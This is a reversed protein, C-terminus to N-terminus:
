KLVSIALAPDDSMIMDVGLARLHQMMQPDNVTWVNVAKGGSHIRQIIKQNVDQYYPHLANFAPQNIQVARPLWGPLGPLALLGCPINPLLAKARKLNSVRFSSFMVRSTDKVGALVRAVADVLGDGPTTYNTLEINIGIKGGVAEFVEALLPLKEGRWAAGYWSGADLKRLDAFSQYKYSGQGTTTRDLTPDHLVIVKGDRTLKVDLEVGDAGAELARTFSSITNEPAHASAGRHAYVAIPTM